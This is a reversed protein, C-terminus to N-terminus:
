SVTPLPVRSALDPNLEPDHACQLLFALTDNSQAVLAEVRGEAASVVEEWNDAAGNAIRLDGVADAEHYEEMKITMDPTGQPVGTRRFGVEVDYGRADHLEAYGLLRGGQGIARVKAIATGEGLEPLSTRGLIVEQEFYEPAPAGDRSEYAPSGYVGLESMAALRDTDTPATGAVFARFGDMIGTFRKACQNARRGFAAKRRANEENEERRRRATTDAEGLYTRLDEPRM